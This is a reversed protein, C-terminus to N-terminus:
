SGAGFSEVLWNRLEPHRELLAQETLLGGAKRAMKVIAAAENRKGSALIRRAGDQFRAEFWLLTQLDLGATYRELPIPDEGPGLGDFFADIQPMRPGEYREFASRAVLHALVQHVWPVEGRVGGMTILIRAAEVETLLDALALTAAEEATGRMPIGPLPPPPFGQIGTWLQVTGEDGMWPVALTSGRIRGPLGYPLGFGFQAWEDRTLVFVRLRLPNKVLKSFDTTLLDLRAKIHYARDLGGPTYNVVVANGKLTLLFPARPEEQPAAAIAERLPGLAVIVLALVVLTHTRGLM